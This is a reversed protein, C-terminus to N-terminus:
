NVVAASLPLQRRRSEYEILVKTLRPGIPVLRAKFFKTDHITLLQQTLDIDQLTLALAESIRMGTGYLLLLLTRMSVAQLPSNSAQLTDTAALIRELESVSYIYPTMPPPLKPRSTPLPSTMAFGRGMAYRYLSGLISFKQQWSATVPGRGAIFALVSEPKVDDVIIEGMARSFGRLIVADVRCRMGLSRKYDIYTEVLDSLKM